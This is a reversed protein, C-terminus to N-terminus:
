YFGLVEKSESVAMNGEQTKVAFENHGDLGDGKVDKEERVDERAEDKEACFLQQIRSLKNKYTEM